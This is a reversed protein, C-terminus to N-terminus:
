SVVEQLFREYGSIILTEKVAESIACVHFVGEPELTQKISYLLQLGSTDIEEVKSLDMIVKHSCEDLITEMQSQISEIESIVMNGSCVIAGSGDKSIKM